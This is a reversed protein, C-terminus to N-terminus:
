SNVFDESSDDTCKHFLPPDMTLTLDLHITLLMLMTSMGTQPPQQHGRHRGHAHGAQVTQAHVRGYRIIPHM